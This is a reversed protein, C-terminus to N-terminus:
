RRALGIGDGVRGALRLELLEHALGVRENQRGQLNILVHAVPGQCQGNLIRASPAEDPALHACAGWFPPFPTSSPHSPAVEAHACMSISEVKVGLSCMGMRADNCTM